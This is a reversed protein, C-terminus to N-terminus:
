SLLLLKDRECLADHFFAACGSSARGGATARIGSGGPRASGDGSSGRGRGPNPAQTPATLQGSSSSSTSLLRYSDCGGLFHGYGSPPIPPPPLHNPFKKHRAVPGM